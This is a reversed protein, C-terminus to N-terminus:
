NSFLTIPDLNVLRINIFDAYRSTDAAKAVEFNIDVYSSLLAIASDERPIIIYVQFRPTNKTSTEAPSCGM